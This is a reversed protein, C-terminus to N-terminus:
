AGGDLPESRGREAVVVAVHRNLADHVYAPMLSEGIVGYEALYGSYAGGQHNWTVLAFGCFGDGHHALAHRLSRGIIRRRTALAEKDPRIEHLDAGM